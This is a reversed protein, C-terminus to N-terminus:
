DHRLFFLEGFQAKADGPGAAVGREEGAAGLHGGARLNFQRKACERYSTLGKYVGANM